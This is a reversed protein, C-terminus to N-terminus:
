DQSCPELAVKVVGSGRPENRISCDSSSWRPDADVSRHAGNREETREIVEGWTIGVGNAVRKAPWNEPDDGKPDVVFQEFSVAM